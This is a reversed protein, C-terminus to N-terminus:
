TFRVLGGNCIRNRFFCFLVSGFAHYFVLKAHHISTMIGKQVIWESLRIQVIRLSVPRTYVRGTM